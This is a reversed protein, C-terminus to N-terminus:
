LGLQIKIRKEVEQLDNKEMAGHYDVILDKSICTIQECLITNNRGNFFISYHTPLEAKEATTFPIVTIVPSYENCYNNSIVLYPRVNRSFQVSGDKKPSKGWVIDGRKISINAM